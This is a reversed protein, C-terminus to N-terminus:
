AILSFIIVWFPLCFFVFGLVAGKFFYIPEDDHDLFYRDGNYIIGLNDM